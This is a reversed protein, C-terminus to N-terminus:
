GSPSRSSPSGNAEARASGPMCPEASASWAVRFSAGCSARARGSGSGCGTRPSRVRKTASARSWCLGSSGHTFDLGSAPARGSRRPFERWDCGSGSEVSTCGCPWPSVLGEGRIEVGVLGSAESTSYRSHCRSRTPDTRSWVALPGGSWGGWCASTPWGDVCALTPRLSSRPCRSSAWPLSPPWARRSWRSPSLARARWITRVLWRM